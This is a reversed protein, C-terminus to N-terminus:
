HHWLKDKKMCGIINESKVAM